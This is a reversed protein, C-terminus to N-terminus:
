RRFCRQRATEPLICGAHRNRRQKRSARLGDLDSVPSPSPRLGSDPIVTRSRGTESAARPSGSRRRGAGRVWRGLRASTGIRGTSPSRRVRGRPADRRVRGPADSQSAGAPAASARAARRRASGALAPRALRGSRQVPRLGGRAWCRRGHPAGIGGTPLGALVRARLRGQAPRLRRDARRAGLRDRDGPRRGLPSRACRWTTGAAGRPGAITAAPVGREVVTQEGEFFVRPRDIAAQVDMGYDVLNSVFYAHGMAQYGGGMVGFSLDCRGDRMALAPIITHMPRKDPGICNPHGPEVVFCAGRNQLMIGTERHAIGVGFAGYLSNILSVAMRDRDVVTLYVTDSGPTPAQPLPVRRAPDLRTPSSRPSVRTSCRRSPSGCTPRIPSIPTACGTPSARRRSRWICASPASRISRPSISTRSSTSCCSRRWAKGTRRCNSWTSVAITADLDARRSRGRHRALDDAAPLRRPGRGHRRHRRRDPGEYFARPGDRAITKLTEALAPFRMVDGAEARPATSWFISRRARITPASARRQNGWDSAVRPAVPFGDEAYRIAPQLARELDFRGHAKLIAAWAEMAGPVTVAHMSDIGIATSARTSCRRSGCAPAARGSGNYGWVPADPQAVLCFCDGGIGTMHPEVVCLTAVATVAADAATGGARLTELAAFTALPHSTAAMAEGAMAASRGPLHFDRSM